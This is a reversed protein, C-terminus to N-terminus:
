FFGNSRRVLGRRVPLALAACAGRDHVAAAHVDRFVPRVSAALVASVVLVASGKILMAALMAAPVAVTVGPGDVRLARNPNHDEQDNQREEELRELVPELLENWVLHLRHEPLDERLERHEAEQCHDCVEHDLPAHQARQGEQDVLVVLM